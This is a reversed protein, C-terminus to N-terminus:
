RCSTEYLTIRSRSKTSPGVTLFHCISPAFAQCALNRLTPNLCILSKPSNSEDEYLSPVDSRIIRMALFYFIIHVSYWCLLEYIQLNDIGSRNLRVIMSDAVPVIHAHQTTCSRSDYKKVAGVM